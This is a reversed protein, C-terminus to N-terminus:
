VGATTLGKAHVRSHQHVIAACELGFPIYGAYGLLPMEFVHFRQVFPVTYEWRALSYYNWMEWCVGCVLAAVAALFVLRWDGRAIGSFVTPRGALAQLGVMLLLPSLWLMPFLHNPWVGIGALGATAALLALWAVRRPRAPRLALFGARNAGFRPWSALWEMISLVAPLVTAFPLTAAVFYTGPGHYTADFYHWNQVFRNLYEFYWWFVASLPFLALFYLPRDRLLCRGTRRCTLANVLVIFAVWLPGFTYPQVAELAPLRTWAAAWSAAFVALAMWGWWPFRGATTHVPKAHGAAARLLWGLLVVGFLLPPLSLLLFAGWSFPAHEVVPPAPPLALYARVPLGALWSGLLPLGLLLAAAFSLRVPTRTLLSPSGVRAHAM